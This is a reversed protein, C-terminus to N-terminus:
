ENFEYFKNLNQSHAKNCSYIASPIGTFKTSNESLRGTSSISKLRGSPKNASKSSSLRNGLAVSRDNVRLDNCQLYVESCVLNHSHRDHNIHM